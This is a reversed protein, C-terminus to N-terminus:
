GRKEDLLSSILNTINSITNKNGLKAINQSLENKLNVDFMTNIIKQSLLYPNNILEIESLVVAAKQNEFWRANATQHGGTLLPNPVIITPKKLIAVEALSTAGARTIVLDSAQMIEYMNSVFGTFRYSGQYNKALKDFAIKADNLQNKGTIHLINFQLVLDDLVSQVIRNLRLAGQSGGTILVLPKNFNDFNYQDQVKKKASEIDLDDKYFNPNLPIGTVKSLVHKKTNKPLNFGFAIAKAHNAIIRNSLGFVTDSEHVMYPVLLMRCALGVPVGISGGNIFVLNPRNVALYYVATIFGIIVLLLDKINLMNTKIDVIHQWLTNTHYRRFKGTSLQYIRHFLGKNLLLTDSAFRGKDIM